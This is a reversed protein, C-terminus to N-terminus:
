RGPSPSPSGSASPSASASPSVSPSPSPTACAAEGPGDDGPPMEMPRLDLPFANRLPPEGGCPVVLSQGSLEPDVTIPRGDQDYLRVGHLPTGDEAYPFINTVEGGAFASVDQVRVAYRPGGGDLAVDAESPRGPVDALAGIVVIAAVVNAAAAAARGWRTAAPRSRRALWVSAWVLVLTFVWGALDRPVLSGEGIVGLVALALAYGRLVWWAPRLEPAFAVAQRYPPLALLRAHAARLAAATRARARATRRRPHGAPRGGYAARLEAAYAEPSGLREELSQGPEAAVESLHDDLDELLEERERDPLDALAERVAGAYERPTMPSNTM